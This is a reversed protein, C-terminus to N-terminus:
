SCQKLWEGVQEQMLIKSKVSDIRGLCFVTLKGMLVCVCVGKRVAM